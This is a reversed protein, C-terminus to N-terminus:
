DVPNGIFYRIGKKHLKQKLVYLFNTQVCPCRTSFIVHGEKQFIPFDKCTQPRAINKHITCGKPGISPCDKNLDLIFTGNEHQKVNIKNGHTVLEVQDEKLILFGKRCCYNNCEKICFRSIDKRAQELLKEVM